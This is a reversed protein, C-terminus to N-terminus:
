RKYVQGNGSRFVNLIPSGFYYVNGSGIIKVDLRDKVTIETNGSGYVEVVADRVQLDFADIMGSGYTQVLLSKYESSDFKIKGSGHSIIALDSIQQFKKVSIDNLGYSSVKRLLPIKVKIVVNSNKIRRYENKYKIKLISNEVVLDLANLLNDYGSVIIEQTVSYDVEVKIDYYSEIASFSELSVNRQVTNGEGIIVGKECSTSSIYAVFLLVYYVSRTIVRHNHIKM